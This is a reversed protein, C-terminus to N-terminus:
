DPSLEAILIINKGFLYKFGLKDLLRSVPHVYRDFLQYSKKTGLSFQKKYGLVKVLFLGFFGLSDCYHCTIVKFGARKVKLLLEKKHYRRYHGISRDHDSYLLMFAPVCIALRGHAKLVGKIECLASIDDEIHELVNSTYVGDVKTHLSSVSEHVDFGRERLVTCLGPDIEICVPKNQTCKEWLRALTGLGAGFEVIANKGIFFRSLDKILDYHFRSLATEADILEKTGAFVNQQSSQNM